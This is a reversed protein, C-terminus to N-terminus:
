RLRLISDAMLGLNLRISTLPNFTLCTAQNCQGSTVRYSKMRWVQERGESIRFYEEGIFVLLIVAAAAATLWQWRTRWPMSITKPQTERPVAALVRARLREPARQYLKAGRVSQRIAQQEDLQQTCSACTKLHDEFEMSRVVDLEGDFYGQLLRGSDKDARDRDRCDM